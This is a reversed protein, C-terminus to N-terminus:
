GNCMEDIWNALEKENKLKREWYSFDVTAAIDAFLEEPLSQLRVQAAEHCLFIWPSVKGQKIDNVLVYPQAATWYETWHRGTRESWKEAHLVFRELAREATENKVESALFRNSVADTNWKDVRVQNTVLWRLYREPAPIRTELIYLGFKVFASYYSSRMFDDYTKSKISGMALKHWENFFSFGLKVHQEDRQLCRRKKECM